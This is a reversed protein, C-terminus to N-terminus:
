YDIPLASAGILIAAMTTGWVIPPQTDVLFCVLGIFFCTIGLAMLILPLLGKINGVILLERIHELEETRAEDDRLWTKQREKLITTRQMYRRQQALREQMFHAPISRGSNMKDELELEALERAIAVWESYAESSAFLEQNLRTQHPQMTIASFLGVATGIIDFALGLFAMTNITKQLVSGNLEYTYGIIQAQVAALFTAIVALANLNAMRAQMGDAWGRIIRPSISTEPPPEVSEDTVRIASPALTPATSSFSSTSSFSGNTPSPQFDTVNNLAPRPIHHPNYGPQGPRPPQGLTNSFPKHPFNPHNNSFM